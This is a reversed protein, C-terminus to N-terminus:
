IIRKKLEDRLIIALDYDENDVAKSLRLKLGGTSIDKVLKPLMKIMADSIGDENKKKLRRYSNITGGIFMGICFFISLVVLSDYKFKTGICIIGSPILLALAISNGVLDRYRDFTRSQRLLNIEYEQEKIKKELEERETFKNNEM